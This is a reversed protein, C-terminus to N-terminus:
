LAGAPLASDAQHQMVVIPPEVVTPVSPGLHPSVAEARQCRNRAGNKWLAGSHPVHGDVLPVSVQQIGSFGPLPLPLKGIQEATLVGNTQVISGDPGLLALVEGEQFDTSLSPTGSSPLFSEHEEDRPPSLLREVHFNLRALAFSRLDQAQRFYIFASFLAMVVGLILVFWLVLRFRISHAFSSLRARTIKIRSTM